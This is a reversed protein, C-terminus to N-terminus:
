FRRDRHSYGFRISARLVRRIWRAAVTKSNLQYAVGFRPGWKSSYPNGVTNNGNGAFVVEGKPVIGTVNAALPNNVTGNFNVVM